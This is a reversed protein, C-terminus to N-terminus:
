KLLFNIVNQLVIDQEYSVDFYTIGLRECEKQNFESIKLYTDSLKKVKEDAAGYLWSREHTFKAHHTEDIRSFGLFCLKIEKIDKQIKLGLEPTFDCGEVVFNEMAKNVTDIYPKLFPFIANCRAEYNEFDNTNLIEFQPSGKKLARTLYDISIGQIGKKEHILRTITSKGSRPCGGILYIM